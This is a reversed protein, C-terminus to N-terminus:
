IMKDYFSGHILHCLCMRRRGVSVDWWCCNMCFNVNCFHSILWFVAEGSSFTFTFEVFSTPLNVVQEQILAMHNPLSTGVPWNWQLHPSPFPFICEVKGVSRWLPSVKKKGIKSSQYLWYPRCMRPLVAQYIGEDEERGVYLLWIFLRLEWSGGSTPFFKVWADLMM